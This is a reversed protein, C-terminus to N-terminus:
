TPLLNSLSRLVLKERIVYAKQHQISPSKFIQAQTAHLRDERSLKKPEESLGSANTSSSEGQVDHKNM